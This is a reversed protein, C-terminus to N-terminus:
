ADYNKGEVVFSGESFLVPDAGADNFARLRGTGTCFQNTQAKTLVVEFQGDSGDTVWELGSDLELTVTTGNQYFELRPEFSSIDYAEGTSQNKITITFPNESDRYLHM